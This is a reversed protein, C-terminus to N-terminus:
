PQEHPPRLSMWILMGAALVIASDAVNFAPWHWGLLHFDLFDVVNGHLIRDIANGLAGGLILALATHQLAPAPKRLWGIIFASVTLSLAIFFFRQWGPQDALLSFAAGENRVHVLNFFGTLEISAYLPLSALVAWKSLQDLIIVLAALGLGKRM